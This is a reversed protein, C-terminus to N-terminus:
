FLLNIGAAVRFGALDIPDFNEYSRGLPAHAWLYRAEFTGMLARHLKADLGGFVHASPTWGKSRFADAFVRQPPPALADIFDGAQTFEYWLFGGGAGV